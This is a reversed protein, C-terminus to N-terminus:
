PPPCRHAPTPVTKDIGCESFLVHDLLGSIPARSATDVQVQQQQVDTSASATIRVRGALGRQTAEGDYAKVSAVHVDSKLARLRVVYSSSQVLDGPPNGTFTYERPASPCNFEPPIGSSFVHQRTSGELAAGWGSYKDAVRSYTIALAGLPSDGDADQCSIKLRDVCAAESLGGVRDDFSCGPQPDPTLDLVDIEVSQDRKLSFALDPTTPFSASVACGPIPPCQGGCNCRTELNLEGPALKLQRLRYLAREAGSEARYFIPLAQVSLTSRHIGATVVTALNVAVALLTATVLLTLLLASGRRRRRNSGIAMLFFPM